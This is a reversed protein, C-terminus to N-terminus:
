GATTATRLDHVARAFFPLGTSRLEARARGPKRFSRLSHGLEHGIVVLNYRYSASVLMYRRGKHIVGYAGGVNMVDRLVPLDIKIKGGKYEHFAANM